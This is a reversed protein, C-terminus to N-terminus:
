ASGNWHLITGEFGVAWVDDRGSGWVASLYRDNAGGTSTSLTLTSGDWHQIIGGRAGGAPLEKAKGCGSVLVVGVVTAVRLLVMLGAGVGDETTRKSTPRM